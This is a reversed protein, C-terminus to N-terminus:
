GQIASPYTLIISSACLSAAPPSQTLLRLKRSPRAIAADTMASASALLFVERGVNTMGTTTADMAAVDMATIAVNTNRDRREAASRSSRSASELFSM